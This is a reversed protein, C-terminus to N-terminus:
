IAPSEEAIAALDLSVLSLKESTVSANFLLWLKCCAERNQSIYFYGLHWLSKM